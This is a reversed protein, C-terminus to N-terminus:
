RCQGPCDDMAMFPPADWSAECEGPGLNIVVGKAPCGMIVPPTIDRISIEQTAHIEECTYKNISTWNIKYEGFPLSLNEGCGVNLDNIAKINSTPIKLEVNVWNESCFPFSSGNTILSNPLIKWRIGGSAQLNFECFSMTCFSEVLECDAGGVKCIVKDNEDVLVLYEFPISSLDGIATMHIEVDACGALPVDKFLIVTTDLHTGGPPFAKFQLDFKGTIMNPPSSPVPICGCDPEIMEPCEPTLAATCVNNFVSGQPPFPAFECSQGFIKM